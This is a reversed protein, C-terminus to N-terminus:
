DGAKTSSSKTDPQIQFRHIGWVSGLGNDGCVVCFRKTPDPTFYHTTPQPRRPATEARVAAILADVDAIFQPTPEDFAALLREKAAAVTDAM